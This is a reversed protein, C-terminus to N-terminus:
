LEAEKKFTLYKEFMKKVAKLTEEPTFHPYKTQLEQLHKKYFVQRMDETKYNEYIEDKDDRHKRWEEGLLKSISTLPYYPFQKRLEPRRDRCFLFFSSCRRKERHIYDYRIRQFQEQNENSCWEEILEPHGTRNLFKIIYTNHKRM